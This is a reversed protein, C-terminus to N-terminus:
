SMPPVVTVNRPDTEWERGGEQPALYSLTVSEGTAYSTLTLTDKLVGVRGTAADRVLTGNPPLDEPKPKRV